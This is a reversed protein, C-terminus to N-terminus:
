TSLHLLFAALPVATAFVSTEAGGLSSGFPSRFSWWGLGVRPRHLAATLALATAPTAVRNLATM